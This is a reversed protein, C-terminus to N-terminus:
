NGTKHRKENAGQLQSLSNANGISGKLIQATNSVGSTAKTVAGFTAEGNILVAAISLLIGIGSGLEPSGSDVLSLMAGLLFGGVITKMIATPRDVAPDRVIRIIGSGAVIVVTTAVSANSM